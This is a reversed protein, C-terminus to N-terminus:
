NLRLIVHVVDGESTTSMPLRSNEFVRLMPTNEALVEAVLERLAAARAIEALHRLLLAGIGQRHYQDVVVFAVEARGPEVVVYRGGGVIAARGAEEVTAVLAVHKVFDVNLFFSMERETFDRKVTFFRRYLSHASTRGVASLLDARDDPKFARITVPRGDRLVESSSYEAPNLM